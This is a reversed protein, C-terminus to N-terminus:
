RGAYDGQPRREVFLRDKDMRVEEKRHSLKTVAIPTMAGFDTQRHSLGSQRSYIAYQEAGNLLIHSFGKLVSAVDLPFLVHVFSQLDLPNQFEVNGSAVGVTQGITPLHGDGSIEDGVELGLLPDSIDGR